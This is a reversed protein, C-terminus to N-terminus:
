FLTHIKDNENITITLKNNEGYKYPIDFRPGKIDDSSYTHVDVTDKMANNLSEKLARICDIYTKNVLKTSVFDHEENNIKNLVVREIFRLYSHMTFINKNIKDGDYLGLLNQIKGKNLYNQGEMKLYQILNPYSDQKKYIEKEVNNITFEEDSVTLPKYDNNNLAKFISSISNFNKNFNLSCFGIKFSDPSLIEIQKLKANRKQISIEKIANENINNNVMSNYELFNLNMGDKINGWKKLAEASIEKNGILSLFHNKNNPNYKLDNYISSLDYLYESYNSNVKSLYINKLSNQKQISSIDNIFNEVLMMREESNEENGIKYYAEKINKLDKVTKLTEPNANPPVQLEQKKTSINSIISEKSYEQYKDVIKTLEEDTTCTQLEKTLNEAITKNAVEENSQSYHNNKHNLGCFENYLKILKNEQTTSLGQRGKINKIEDLLKVEFEQQKGKHKIVKITDETDNNKQHRIEIVDGDNSERIKTNDEPISNTTLIKTLQAAVTVMMSGLTDFFVGKKKPDEMISSIDKSKLISNKISNQLLTEIENNDNDTNGRFKVTKQPNTQQQNFLAPLLKM